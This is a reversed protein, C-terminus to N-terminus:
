FFVDFFSRFARSETADHGGARGWRIGYRSHRTAMAAHGSQIRALVRILIAGISDNESQSVTPKSRKVPKAIRLADPLVFVM